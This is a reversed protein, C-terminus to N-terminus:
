EPNYRLEVNRLFMYSGDERDFLSILLFDAQQTQKQQNTAQREESVNIQTM